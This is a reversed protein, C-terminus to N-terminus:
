QTHPNEYWLVGLGGNKKSEECALVDLDAFVADEVSPTEEAAPRSIQRPPIGASVHVVFLLGLAAFPFSALM